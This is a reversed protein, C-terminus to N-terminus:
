ESTIENSESQIFRVLDERSESNKIKREKEKADTQNEFSEKYVLNWPIGSKTYKSRGQNHRKLRDELNSTQGVYYRDVVASYLIYGYYM